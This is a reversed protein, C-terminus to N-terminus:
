STSFAHLKDYHCLASQVHTIHVQIRDEFMEASEQSMLGQKIEGISENLARTCFPLFAKRSGNKRSRKRSEEEEEEKEEEDKDEEQEEEDEEDEEQEEEEDMGGTDTSTASVLDKLQLLLSTLKVILDISRKSKVMRRCCNRGGGGSEERKERRINENLNIKNLNDEIEEEEEQPM